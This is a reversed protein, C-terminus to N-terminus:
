RVSEKCAVILLCGYKQKGRSYSIGISLLKAMFWAVYYPLLLRKHQHRKESKKQPQLPVRRRHTLLDRIGTRLRLISEWRQVEACHLYEESSVVILNHKELHRKWESLSWYRYHILRKDLNQLYAERSTCLTLPGRLCDHFNPGPVTFIFKGGDKLLRSVEAITEDIDEIHELVSNSIVADFSADNEPISSALCNYVQNYLNTNIARLTQGPDADIGILILDDTHNGILVSTFKGDGCGLDLIRGSSPMYRKLVDVEVARWFALDPQFTYLRLFNSFLNLNVM